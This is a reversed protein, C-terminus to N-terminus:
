GVRSGAAGSGIALYQPFALTPEPKSGGVLILCAAILVPLPIWVMAHNRALMSLWAPTTEWTEARLVAAFFLLVSIAITSILLLSLRLTLTKSVWDLRSLSSLAIALAIRCGFFGVAYVVLGLGFLMGRDGSTNPEPYNLYLMGGYCFCAGLLSLCALVFMFSGYVILRYLSGAEFVTAIRSFPPELFRFRSNLKYELQAETVM